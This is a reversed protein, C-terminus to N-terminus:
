WRVNGSECRLNSVLTVQNGVEVAQYEKVHNEFGHPAWAGWTLQRSSTATQTYCNCACTHLLTIHLTLLNLLGLQM